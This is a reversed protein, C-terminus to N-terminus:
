KSAALPPNGEGVILGAGSDVSFGEGFTVMPSQLALTFGEQIQTSEVFIPEEATIAETEQIVLGAILYETPKLSLIRGAVLLGGLLIVLTAALALAGAKDSFWEAVRPTPWELAVNESSESVASRVLEVEYSCEPCNEIHRHCRDRTTADLDTGALAFSCLDKSSPHRAAAPDEGLAEAFFQYTAVWSCCERCTAVHAGLAKTQALDLEGSETLLKSATSHEM